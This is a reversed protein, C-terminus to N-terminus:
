KGMFGSYKVAHVFRAKNVHSNSVSARFALEASIIIADSALFSSLSSGIYRETEMSATRAANPSQDHSRRASSSNTSLSVTTSAALQAALSEGPM